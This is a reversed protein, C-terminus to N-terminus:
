DRSKPLPPPKAIPPAHKMAREFIRKLLASAESAKEQPLYKEFAALHRQLNTDKPQNEEAM